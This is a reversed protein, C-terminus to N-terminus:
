SKQPLGPGGFSSLFRKLVVNGPLTADHVLAFLFPFSFLRALQEDMEKRRERDSYCLSTSFTIQILM